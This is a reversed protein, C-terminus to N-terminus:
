EQGELKSKGDKSSTLDHHQKLGGCADDMPTKTSTEQKIHDCNNIM